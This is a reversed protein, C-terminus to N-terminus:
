GEEKEHTKNKASEEEEQLFFFTSIQFQSIEKNQFVLTKEREM